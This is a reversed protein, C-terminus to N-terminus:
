SLDAAELVQAEVLQDRVRQALERDQGFAMLLAGAEPPCQALRCREELLGLDKIVARRYLSSYQFMSGQFVIPLPRAGSRRVALRISRAM